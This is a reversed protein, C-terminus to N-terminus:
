KRTFRRLQPVLESLTKAAYDIQEETNFIGLSFRVTSDLAERKAHIAQLTSSQSPHNSSCASGSSVYIGRDELAHLLVEARVGYVSVSIIQPASDRGTKGNIHIDEIDSIANIFREKLAYFKERHEELHEDAYKAAVGLGAIAPVNETGSRLGKEQGGGYIRPALRDGDKMYLFGSGKPGNIKHGSVSLFDIGLERPRIKIKGYSQIADVHFLCEPNKEKIIKSVEEIPEIAGMENNVHMISVLITNEDLENRLQELDIIGNEDVNLYVVEYGQDTLYRMPNKVSAHEVSTTIIKNGYRKRIEATGIIATNNSESGGSTFYIEKDSVGLSKAINHRAEKLYEEADVGKMHLSSPNGFNQTLAEVMKDVAADLCRTTASNDLYAEMEIEEKIV